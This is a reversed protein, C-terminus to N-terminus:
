PLRLERAKPAPTSELGRGSKDSYRQELGEGDIFPSATGAVQEALKARYQKYV